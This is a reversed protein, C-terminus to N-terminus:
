GRLTNALRLLAAKTEESVGDGGAKEDRSSQGAKFGHAAIAKAQAHSLGFEDRIAREFDRVTAIERQKPANKFISLNFARDLLDEPEEDPKRSLLKDAFGAEVAEKANFWTEAELMGQLEERSKGTRGEYIDILSGELKDLVEAEKRFDNADGMAMTWPKHIMMTSGEHMVIEDGAMAIISAISAAFGEVHTVVRAKHSVLANYMAIGDFVSGGPSNIRLNITEVKLSQLDKAFQEAQVGWYGIADYILVDAEKDSATKMLYCSSAAARRQLAQRMPGHEIEILKKM